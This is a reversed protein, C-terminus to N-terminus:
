DEKLILDFGASVDTDNSSSSCQLKIIAPGQIRNYPKYDQSVYNAGETTVGLTNKIIFGLSQVNPIPNIVLNVEVSLSTSAKISSVYYRTMYAVATSPIGYIAMQTQNEGAMIKATLTLDVDATASIDGDAPGDAGWITPRMRHIIVYNNVTPVPTLGNMEVIESVENTDWDVLGFIKIKQAGSGLLTDNASSSVISHGRAQTPPLWIPQNDTVNAGDWIDTEVGSDVNKSRGYKNVPRKGPILGETVDLMFDTYNAVPLPNNQFDGDFEELSIKLNGGATADIDTVTGDPKLAQLRSAVYTIKQITNNTITVTDTTHFEIRIANGLQPSFEYNYSTLKDNNASDDLVEREVAGSGLVIIKVNSFSKGPHDACGLGVNYLSITRNFHFTISKIADATSNEIATHLNNFPILAVDGGAGDLDTWNTVISESVWIDSAFVSGLNVFQPNQVNIPDGNEDNLSVFTDGSSEVSFFDTLYTELEADTAFGSVNTAPGLWYEKKFVSDQLFFVSNRIEFDGNQSTIYEVSEGTIKLTNNKKELVVM